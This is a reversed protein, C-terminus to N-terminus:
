TAPCRRCAQRSCSGAASCASHRRGRARGPRHRRSAPASGPQGALQRLRHAVPRGAPGFLHVPPGADADAPSSRGRCRDGAPGIAAASGSRRRGRRVCGPVCWVRIRRRAAMAHVGVVSPWDTRDENQLASRTRDPASGPASGVVRAVIRHCASRRGDPVRARVHIASVTDTLSGAGACAPVSPCGRSPIIMKRNELVPTATMQIAAASVALAHPLLDFLDEFLLVLLVPAAVPLDSFAQM